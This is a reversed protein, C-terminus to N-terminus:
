YCLTIMNIVNSILLSSLHCVHKAKNTYRDLGGLITVHGVRGFRGHGTKGGRAVLTCNESTPKYTNM